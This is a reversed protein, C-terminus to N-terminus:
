EGIREKPERVGKMDGCATAEAAGEDGNPNLELM